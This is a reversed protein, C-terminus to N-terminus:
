LEPQIQLGSNKTQNTKTLFQGKLCEDILAVSSSMRVRLGNVDAEYICFYFCYFAYCRITELLM